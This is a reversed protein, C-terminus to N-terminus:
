EKFLRLNREPDMGRKEESSLAQGAEAPPVSPTLVHIEPIATTAPEELSGPLSGVFLFPRENAESMVTKTIENRKQFCAKLAIFYCLGEASASLGKRNPHFIPNSGVVKPVM